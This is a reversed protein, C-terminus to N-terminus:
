TRKQTGQALLIPSSLYSCSAKGLGERHTSRKINLRTDTGKTFQVVETRQIHDYAFEKGSSYVSSAEDALTKSRIM